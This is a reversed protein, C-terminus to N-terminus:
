GGREGSAIPDPLRRMALRACGLLRFAREIGDIEAREGSELRTLLREAEGLHDRAAWRSEAGDAWLRGRQPRGFRSPADPPRIWGCGQTWHSLTAASIGLRGAIADRGLTTGGVLERAQAVVDDTRPRERRGVPRGSSRIPFTGGYAALGLTPANREREGPRLLRAAYRAAAALRRAAAQAAEDVADPRPLAACEALAAVREFGARLRGGFGAREVAVIGPWRAAELPRTWGRRKTWNHITTVGLGTKAAIAAHSLATGEVLVRVREVVDPVYRRGRGRKFRPNTPASVIPVNPDPPVEEGPAPRAWGERAHWRRVTAACVGVQAGIAPYPLSTQEVLQRMADLVAPPSRRPSPRRPRIRRGPPDYPDLSHM